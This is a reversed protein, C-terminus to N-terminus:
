KLMAEKLKNPKSCLQLHQIKITHSMTESVSSMVHVQITSYLHYLQGTLFWRASHGAEAWEGLEWM